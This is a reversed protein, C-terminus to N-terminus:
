FNLTVCSAIIKKPAFALRSAIVMGSVCLMDVEFYFTANNMENFIRNVTTGTSVFDDVIINYHSPLSPIYPSIKNGHRNEKPKTIYVINVSKYGKKSLYNYLQTAVIIGSTGTCYLILNKDISVKKFILKGMLKIREVNERLNAHVPYDMETLNRNEIVQIKEHNITITKM